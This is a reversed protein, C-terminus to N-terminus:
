LKALEMVHERPNALTATCFIFKPHSGYVDQCIRKLRRLILATHCGFAGKYSHAEDIVVYELNSLIRRFQAHSPLISMHLMDPNTILLRAGDRVKARDKMPTDGDYINVDFDRLGKTMELLTKLQDQANAKTPFIYLACSTSSPRSVSELVPVNYCLSKGSSTSTSVVVHKGSVAAEIAQAQHSYLRTVGIAKLADRTPQSLHPPLPCFSAERGPIEQVHRVQGHKGLGQKLHEVMPAPGLPQEGHCYFSPSSPNSNPV